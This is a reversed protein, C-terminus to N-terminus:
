RQGFGKPWRTDRVRYLVRFLISYETLTGCDESMVGYTSVSHTWPHDRRAISMSTLCGVHVNSFGKKDRLGRM